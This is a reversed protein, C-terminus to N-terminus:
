NKATKKTKKSKPEASSKKEVQNRKRSKPAIAKLEEKETEKKGETKKGKEKRLAMLFLRFVTAFKPEEEGQEKTTVNKLVEKVEEDYQEISKVLEEALLDKAEKTLKSAFPILTEFFEIVSATNSTTM